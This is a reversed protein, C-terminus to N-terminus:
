FFETTRNLSMTSSVFYKKKLPILATFLAQAYDLMKRQPFFCHIM